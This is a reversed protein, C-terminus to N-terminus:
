AEGIFINLTLRGKAPDPSLRAPDVQGSHLLNGHYLVLRNFRAETGGIREFSATDGLIYAREGESEAESRRAANYADINDQTLREFGTRRHRYFGTGGQGEDCLYILAALRRNGINDVHPISQDPSLDEPRLTVLGFYGTCGVPANAPVGYGRQLVQRLARALPTVFEPSLDANVGPYLTDPQTYVAEERGFRAVDGANALVDDIIVVPSGAHGITFSRARANPNFALPPPLM